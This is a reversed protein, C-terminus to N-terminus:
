KGTKSWLWHQKGDTMDNPNKVVLLLASQPQMCQRYILGTASTSGTFEVDIMFHAPPNDIRLVGNRYQATMDKITGGSYHSGNAGSGVTYAGPNEAMDVGIALVKTIPEMTGARVIKFNVSCSNTSASTSPMIADAYDQPNKIETDIAMQQADTKPPGAAAAAACGSPLVFLAAAPKGVTFQKVEVFTGMSGLNAKVVLGYKTDVWVKVNEAPTKGAVEYVKTAFGNLTEAGTMKVEPKGLDKTMDESGSFPDGWDGSFNGSGCGGVAATEATWSISTHAQLDYLTRTKQGQANTLEIMAKPGDRYIRTTSGPGSMANNEVVSYADPAKAFQAFLKPTAIIAAVILAGAALNLRMKYKRNMIENGGFWFM